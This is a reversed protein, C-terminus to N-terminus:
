PVPKDTTSDQMKCHEVTSDRLYQLWSTCPHLSQRYSAALSVFQDMFARSSHLSSLFVVSVCLTGPHGHVATHRRAHMNADSDRWRGQSQLSSRTIPAGLAGSHWMLEGTGLSSPLGANHVLTLIPHGSTLTVESCQIESPQSSLPRLMHGSMPTHQACKIYGSGSNDKVAPLAALTRVVDM